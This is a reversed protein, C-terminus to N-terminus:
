CFNITEPFKVYLLWSNDFNRATSSAIEKRGSDSLNDQYFVSSFLLFSSLINKQFSAGFCTKRSLKLNKSGGVVLDPDKLTNQSISRFGCKLPSNKWVKCIDSM